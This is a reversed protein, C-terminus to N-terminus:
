EYGDNGDFRGSTLQGTFVENGPFDPYTWRGNELVEGFELDGNIDRFASVHADAFLFNGITKDSRKGPLIKLRSRGHAPGLDDFSAKAFMGAYPGSMFRVPGDTVSKVVDVREGKYTIFGDGPDSNDTRGDALMPVRSASVAGLSRENLPGTEIRGDFAMRNLDGVSRADRNNYETYAMYWTQTYNTNYGDEIMRDREERTFPRWPNQNLRERSGDSAMQLNQNSQALNTPCLLDGVRLGDNVQDAVWGTTNIPGYGNVSGRRNDFPGTSFAGNNSAAFNSFGIGLQRLNSACVMRQATDRAAALSPLLIGILLAIISIVVLLEILTFARTPSSFVSRRHNIITSGEGPRAGDQGTSDM